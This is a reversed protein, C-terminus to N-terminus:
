RAAPPAAEYEDPFSSTPPFTTGAELHEEILRELQAVSVPKTLYGDMGAEMCAKAVGNGTDATLAVIVSRGIGRRAELVRLCRTAEWGDLVPMLCDMLVLDFGGREEFVELAEKGNAVVTCRHGLKSLMRAAVKQNVQNDEAVLIKWPSPSRELAALRSRSDGAQSGSVLGTLVQRLSQLKIPKPLWGVFGNDRARQAEGKRPYRSLAVLRPLGGKNAMRLTHLVPEPDVPLEVLVMDFPRDSAASRALELGGAMADPVGVAVMGCSELMQLVMTRELPRPDLVLARLGQLEGEGHTLGPELQAHPLQLRFWVELQRDVREVGVEGGMRDLIRRALGLGLSGQFGFRRYMEATFPEFLHRSEEAGLRTRSDRVVVRLGVAGLAPVAEEDLTSDQERTVEISVDGSGTHHTVLVLLNLLAQRLRSADGVLRTPLSADWLLAVQQGRALLRESALEMADEILGRLEFATSELEMPGAESGAYDLIGNVLELLTDASQRLAELSEQQEADLATGSLLSGMGVIANLPTRIEHSMAALFEGKARNALETEEALARALREASEAHEKARRLELGARERELVEGLSAGVTTLAAVEASGWEMEADGHDFGLFGWFQERGQVPVVLISGLGLSRFVQREAEPFDALRGSVPIGCSLLTHWRLLDPAWSLVHGDEPIEVGPACTWRYELRVGAASTADGKGEYFVARVAGLSRAIGELVEPITLDRSRMAVISTLAKSSAGLIEERRRLVAEVRKREAVEREQEELAAKLSAEVGEVYEQHRAMYAQEFALKEQRRFRMLIVAGAALLIAAEFALWLHAATAAMLGSVVQDLIFNTATMGIALGLGLSVFLSRIVSSFKM